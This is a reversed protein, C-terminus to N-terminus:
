ININKTKSFNALKQNQNYNNRLCQVISIQFVKYKVFRPKKQALRDTIILFSEETVMNQGSTEKNLAFSLIKM